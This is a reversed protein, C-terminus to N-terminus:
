PGAFILFNRSDQDLDLFEKWKKTQKGVLAALTCKFWFVLSLLQKERERTRNEGGKDSSWWEGFNWERRDWGRQWFILFFLLRVIRNKLLILNQPKLKSEHKYSTFVAWSKIGGWRLFRFNSETKTFLLNIDEQIRLLLFKRKRKANIRVVSMQQVFGVPRCQCSTM